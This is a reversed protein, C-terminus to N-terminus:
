SMVRFACTLSGAREIAAWDGKGTDITRALVDAPPLSALRASVADLDFLDTIADERRWRALREALLPRQAAIHVPDEVALDHQDVRHLCQICTWAGHGIQLTRHRLNEAAKTWPPNSTM